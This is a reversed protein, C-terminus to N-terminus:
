RRRARLPRPPPPRPTRRSGRASGRRARARTSDSTGSRVVVQPGAGLAEVLDLGHDGVPALHHQVRRVDALDAGHVRVDRGDAVVAAVVEQRLPVAEGVHGAAVQRVGGVEAAGAGVVGVGALGAPHPDREGGADGLGVHARHAEPVEVRGRDIDVGPRGIGRVSTTGSAPSTSYRSRGPWTLPGPSAPRDRAALSGAMRRSAPEPSVTSMASSPVTCTPRSSASQNPGPDGVRGAATWAGRALHEVVEARRRRHRHDVAVDAARHEGVGFARHHHEAGVASASTSPRAVPAKSWGDTPHGTKVGARGRRPHRGSSRRATANWCQSNPRGALAPASRSPKKRSGWRGGM